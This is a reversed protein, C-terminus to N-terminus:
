IAKDLFSSPQKPDPSEQANRLFRQGKRFNFREYGIKRPWFSSNYIEEQFEPEVGVMFSQNNPRTNNTDLVKVEVDREVHTHESSNVPKTHTIIYNKIDEAGVDDPVRTVFLWIKRNKEIKGHFKQDGDGSGINIKRRRQAVQYEADTHAPNLRASDDIIGQSITDRIVNQLNYANQSSNENIHHNSQNIPQQTSIKSINKNSKNFETHKKATEAYSKSTRRSSYMDDRRLNLTNSIVGDANVPKEVRLEYGRELAPSLSAKAHSYSSPIRSKDFNTLLHVMEINSERLTVIEDKTHSISETLDNKLSNLLMTFDNQIKVLNNNFNEELQKLSSPMSCECVDCKLKLTRKNLQMVRIETERLGSCAQCLRSNCQDCKIKKGLEETSLEIKCKACAM